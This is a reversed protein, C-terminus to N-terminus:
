GITGWGHGRRQPEPRARAEKPHMYKQHVTRLVCDANVSIGFDELLYNVNTGLRGEGGETLLLLLAGGRAIFEKLMQFEETSFPEQPAGLVLVNARGLAEATLQEDLKAPRFGTRLRRFLQKYKFKDAQGERPSFREASPLSLSNYSGCRSSAKPQSEGNKSCNFVVM